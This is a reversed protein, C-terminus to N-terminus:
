IEDESIVNIDHTGSCFLWTSPLTVKELFENNSSNEYQKGDDESRYVGLGGGAFLLPNNPDAAVADVPHLRGRDRLPLKCNFDPTEWAADRVDTDLSVVGASHSGALVKSGSFAIDRCSDGKWGERFATWEEPDELTTLDWRLCGEGSVNGAVTVGAWLYSNSQVRLVRIDKKNLGIHRFSKAEGGTRSIFIGGLSSAAVAVNLRGRTDRTTVVSFFGRNQDSEDVLIPVPVSDLGVSLEYLGVETALLLQPFQTEWAKWAVDKVSISSMEAILRWTEGCDESIHLQSGSNEGLLRTAVCLLGAQQPHSRITEIHQDAFYGVSEWGEGNNLSRFLKDSTGAYWTQPQFADRELALIDKNPVDNVWLRVQDVYSVGPEALVIDYVHSARLSQGFRWGAGRSTPLPNITQHLRDLVRTKVSSTDEGRHVVVRATVRVTKYRVWNVLCTTGLPRREDLTKQVRQKSQDTEQQKLMEMTVQGDHLQDDSLSPLLLVEVTGPQAHKWLAAQTFAKARAVAGLNREALSEFDRATVARQLTHLEQPGRILANELTESSSGGKAPEPNTVSIAPIPDKLLTLTNAAVNGEPGGGRRYWVRIERGKTPIEALPKATETLEHNANQTRAEPAFTIIGALRDVVYVFRNEGLNSFNEVEHWKRFAKGEFKVAPVREDLEDPMAEVGVFLDFEDGTPAVIPPRQISISQGSLNAGLGALEGVVLECHHGTVDIETKGPEISVSHATVFIPPQTDASTRAPTVRTGRPIVVPNNQPRALSFRLAVTAAAPPYLKVGMLRLFEVYAKEPLRNLRYIMVETIHAFSELLAMGPDGVSLDTWQPCSRSIQESAEKVLQEFTRDDLNPSPLPM